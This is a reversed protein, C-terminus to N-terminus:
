LYGRSLHLFNKTTKVTDYGYLLPLAPKTIGSKETNISIYNSVLLNSTKIIFLAQGQVKTSPKSYQYSLWDSAPIVEIRSRPLATRYTPTDFTNLKGSPHPIRPTWAM